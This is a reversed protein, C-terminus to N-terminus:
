IFIIYIKIEKSITALSQIKLNNEDTTIIGNYAATNFLQQEEPTNIAFISVNSVRRGLNHEILLDVGSATLTWGYPNPTSNSIRDAVSIGVALRLEYVVQKAESSLAYRGDLNVTFEIDSDILFNLNGNATDFQVEDWSSSGGIQLGESVVTGDTKLFRIWDDGSTFSYSWSSGDASYQVRLGYNNLEQIIANINQRAVLGSDGNNIETFAM